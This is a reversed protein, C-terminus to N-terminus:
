FHEVQSHPSPQLLNGTKMVLKYTIGQMPSRVQDAKSIQTFTLASLLVSKHVSVSGTAGDASTFITLTNDFQDATSDVGM